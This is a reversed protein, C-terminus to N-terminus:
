AFGKAMPMASEQTVGVRLRGTEGGRTERDRKERRGRQLLGVIFVVGVFFAVILGLLLMSPGSSVVVELPFEVALAKDAPQFRILMVYRGPERFIHRAERDGKLDPRPVTELQVPKASESASTVELSIAGTYYDETEARRISILIGTTRGVEAVAPLLLVEVAFADAPLTMLTGELGPPFHHAEAEACVVWVSFFFCVTKLRLSM